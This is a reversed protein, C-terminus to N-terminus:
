RKAHRWWLQSTTITLVHDPNAALSASYAYAKIGVSLTHTGKTVIAHFPLSTGWGQITVRDTAGALRGDIFVGLQWGWTVPSVQQAYVRVVTELGGAIVGDEDLDFSLRADAPFVWDRSAIDGISLTLTGSGFPTNNITFANFVERDAYKAATLIDEGLDNSDLSGNFLGQATRITRNVANPDAITGDEFIENPWYKM